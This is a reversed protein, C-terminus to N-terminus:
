TKNMLNTKLYFFGIGFGYYLGLRRAEDNILIHIKQKM